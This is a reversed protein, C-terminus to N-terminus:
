SNTGVGAAALVLGHRTQAIVSPGSRGVVRVTESAVAALRVEERSAGPPVPVLRGEVKSVAKSTVVVVDGAAARTARPRAARPLRCAGSREPALDLAAPTM